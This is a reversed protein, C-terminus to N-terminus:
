FAETRRFRYQKVNVSYCYIKENHDPSEATRIRLAKEVPFGHAPELGNLTLGQPFEVHDVRRRIQARERQQRPVSQLAELGIALALVADADIVLPAKAKRPAVGVGIFDLDHIVVLPLVGHCPFYFWHM